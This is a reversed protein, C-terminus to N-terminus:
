VLYIGLKKTKWGLTEMMSVLMEMKNEMSGLMCDWCTLSSGDILTLFHKKKKM